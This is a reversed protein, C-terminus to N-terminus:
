GCVRLRVGEVIHLVNTVQDNTAVDGFTCEPGFAVLWDRDHITGWDAHQSRRVDHVM